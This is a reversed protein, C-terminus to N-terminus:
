QKQWIVRGSRIVMEVRSFNTLDQAPDASLITLDALKGPTVTGKVNSVGMRASPNTTLMALIDKWDLGSKGLEVFERDTSYDTMYGVDTGFILQGGLEHFQRVEACIPDMYHSDATVTTTFMKLTPIMAMNKHIAGSLLAENVGRTDDAAHALVDVGSDIAVRMGALNSPHAFVLKGNLHSEEVAARAIDLPMPLVHGRQVWSGTFLKTLDAGSALGRRVIRRAADPSAPQPLMWQLWLPASEKIYFPVGNPPYLPPGSSYIYPGKLQVREIRRRIAFTDAPNSGVDIVTTFGRSLFMDALQANLLDDSKWEALNWKPETFHVHANWFGAMVTCGNCPLVTADSPVALQPGVAAILGDRLIVTGDEIPPVTPSTCIRAHQLALTGHALKLPPHSNHRPFVELTWFAGCAAVFLILLLFVFRVIWRRM